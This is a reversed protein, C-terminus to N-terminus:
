QMLKFCHNKIKALSGFGVNNQLSENFGLNKSLCLCFDVVNLQLVNMYILAVETRTTTTTTVFNSAKDRFCLNETM